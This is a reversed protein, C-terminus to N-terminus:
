FIFKAQAGADGPSIIQGHSDVATTGAVEINKGVLVARSYGAVSEWPADSSFNIRETM